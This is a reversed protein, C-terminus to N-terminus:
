SPPSLPLISEVVSCPVNVYICLRFNRNQQFESQNRNEGDTTSAYNGLIQNLFVRIWENLYKAHFQLKVQLAPIYQPRDPKLNTARSDWAGFTSCVHETNKPRM